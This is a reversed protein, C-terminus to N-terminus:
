PAEVRVPAHLDLSWCAADVDHCSFERIHSAGFAWYDRWAVPFYAPHFPRPERPGLWLDWNLGAPVAAQEKPRGTLTPNWRKANVWAHVERVTGLAGSWIWECTQRIGDSSHGQNGMQTAVGTERAVRAVQRAEWLNHTLPKECYVHKGSRMAFVSVYAHLHDPTACLVADISKEKELMVRFDEYAACHFHPTKAWHKEIEGQVPVRGGVGKFYFQELSFSEAPDAVAVIQADPQKFLERANSRGQGGAGVLAINVKDSPPVFGRG